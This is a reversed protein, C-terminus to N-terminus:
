TRWLHVKSRWSTRMPVYNPHFQLQVPIGKWCELCLTHSTYFSWLPHKWWFFRTCLLLQRMVQNGHNGSRWGGPDQRPVTCTPRGGPNSAGREWESVASLGALLVWNFELQLPNSRKVWVWHSAAGPTHHPLVRYAADGTLPTHYSTLLRCTGECQLDGPHSTVPDCFRYCM